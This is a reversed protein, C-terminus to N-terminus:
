KSYFYKQAKIPSVCSYVMLYNGQRIVANSALEQPLTERSSFRTWKHSAFNFKWLEQFLPFSQVAYQDEEQTSGNEATSPNYGGFSYLNKTDCVIRHGSRPLPTQKNTASSPEIKEYNFIKFSYNNKTRNNNPNGMTIKLIIHLLKLIFKLIKEVLM